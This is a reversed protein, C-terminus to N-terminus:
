NSEQVYDKLMKRYRLALEEKQIIRNKIEIVGRRVTLYNFNTFERSIKSYSWGSNHLILWVLYRAVVNEQKRTKAYIDVGLADGFKIFQEM